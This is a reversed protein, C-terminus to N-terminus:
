DTIVDEMIRYYEEPHRRLFGMQNARYAEFAQRDTFGYCVPSGDLQNLNFVCQICSEAKYCKSCQNELKAFYTNYKEAIGELDLEVGGGETVKGLAFQQGIRECPLIKGNVTVFMRKSFPICTGTPVTKKPKGFLLDTYSHFVFGSYQHIFNTVSQYTASKLFMDQEIKEYNESQHLSEQSNRYTQRFLEVKDPRIGMNNLEGISPIKDYHTKFFEYVESVSNRNHLVANFNVNQEFYDPYKNRLAELNRIIDSYAAKGGKSVRYSTNYENGDLSILLVFGHKVLFDMYRELLLANTTMSFTFDRFRGDLKGVYDVVSEIFPMNLLPEGGYFSIYVNRKASMNYESGWLAALYDILQKAAPLSLKSSERKDYDNYLEGYACYKCSLNCADTVEFTLQRLNALQYRVDDATIYKKGM